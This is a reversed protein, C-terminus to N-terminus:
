LAVLKDLLTRADRNSYVLGEHIRSILPVAAVQGAGCHGLLSIALSHGMIYKPKTNNQSEQHLFKVASM